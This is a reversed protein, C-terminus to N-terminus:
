EPRAAIMARYTPVGSHAAGCSCGHVGRLTMVETPEVPVRVFGAAEMASEYAALVAKAASRYNELEWGNRAVVTQWPADNDDDHDCLAKAAAEIAEPTATTM